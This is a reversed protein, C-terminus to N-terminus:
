RDRWIGQARYFAIAGPHYAIGADIGMQAPDFEAWLPGTAKLDGPNRYLAEVVRAVTADPVKTSTYFVYDYQVLNVPEIVGTQGASPKIEVFSARPLRKEIMARKQPSADFSLYRIGGLAQDWERLPGAGLAGISTATTGGRFLDFMRPFAPVPVQQVDAITLGGNELFADMIVRGLPNGTFGTPVQKGRLDAVSRIPADKQVLLGAVFPFLRAAIRLEPNPKGELIVQGDRLYVAEVVNAIAFELEGANVMPTYQAAGAMPQMRMQFGSKESVVKAIATAIQNTAGAQTTGIGITQSAAPLGWAVGVALAMMTSVLQRRLAM